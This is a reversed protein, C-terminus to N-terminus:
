TLQELPQREQSVTLEKFALSAHGNVTTAGPGPVSWAYLTLGTVVLFSRRVILHGM